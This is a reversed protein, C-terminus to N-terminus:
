PQPNRLDIELAFTDPHHFDPKGPAHRSAWYSLSGDQAELVTALGVRLRDGTPLNALPLCVQVILQGALSETAIHPAAALELLGGERYARFAYAQWQSSPSFNFERYASTGESGAFLEFCTHRWLGDAREANRKRPIQLGALDGAVEYRLYLADGPHASLEVRFSEIWPVPSTPHHFLHAIHPSQM